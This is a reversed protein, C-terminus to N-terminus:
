VQEKQEDWEDLIRQLCKEVSRLEALRLEADRLKKLAVSAQARWYDVTQEQEAVRKQQEKHLAAIQQQTM